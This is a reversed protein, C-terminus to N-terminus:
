LVICYFRPSISLFSLWAEISTQGAKLTFKEFLSFYQQYLFLFLQAEFLVDFISLPNALSIHLTFKPKIFGFSLALRIFVLGKFPYSSSLSNIFLILHFILSLKLAQIFVKLYYSYPM